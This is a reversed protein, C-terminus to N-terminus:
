RQALFREALKTPVFRYVTHGCQTCRAALQRPTRRRKPAGASMLHRTAQDAAADRGHDWRAATHTAPRVFRRMLPRNRTAHRCHRRWLTGRYDPARAPSLLADQSHRGAAAGHHTSKGKQLRGRTGPSGLPMFLLPRPPGRRQHEPCPPETRYGVSVVSPVCPPVDAWM